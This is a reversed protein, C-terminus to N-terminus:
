GRPDVPEGALFAVAAPVLRRAAALSPASLRHTVTLDAVTQAAVEFEATWGDDVRRYTVSVAGCREVDVDEVVTGATLRMGLDYARRPGRGLAM